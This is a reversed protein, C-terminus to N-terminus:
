NSKYHNSAFQKSVIFLYIKFYKKILFKKASTFKNIKLYCIRLKIKKQFFNKLKNLYRIVFM